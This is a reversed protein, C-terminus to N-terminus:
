RSYARVQRTYAQAIAKSKEDLPRNSLVGALLSLAHTPQRLDHSASALFRTKSTSAQDAELRAQVASNLAHDLEKNKKKLAHNLSAQQERIEYSQKFLRFHNSANSYQIAYYVINLM